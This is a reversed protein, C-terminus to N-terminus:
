VDPDAALTQRDDWQCRPRVGAELLHPVGDLGVEHVRRLARILQHGPHHALPFIRDNVEVLACVVHRDIVRIDHLV